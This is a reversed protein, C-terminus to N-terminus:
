SQGPVVALSTCTTTLSFNQVTGALAAAQPSGPANDAVTLSAAAAAGMVTPTFTVSITCNANVALSSGCNNTQAFESANAGTFGISTITLAATGTNSLNASQVAST